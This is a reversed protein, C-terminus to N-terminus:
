LDLIDTTTETGKGVHRSSSSEGRAGEQRAHSSTSSHVLFFSNNANRFFSTLMALQMASM